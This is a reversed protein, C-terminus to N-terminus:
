HYPLGASLERKDQTPSGSANLNGLVVHLLGRSVSSSPVEQGEERYHDM